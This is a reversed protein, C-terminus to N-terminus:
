FSASLCTSRITKLSTDRASMPNSAASLSTTSTEASPSCRRSFADFSRIAAAIRSATASLSPAYHVLGYSRLALGDDAGVGHAPDHLVDGEAPACAASSSHM